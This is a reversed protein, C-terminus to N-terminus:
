MGTTSFPELLACKRPVRDGPNAHDKAVACEVHDVRRLKREAHGGDTREALRVELRFGDNELGDHGDLDDRGDLELTRKERERGVKGLYDHESHM